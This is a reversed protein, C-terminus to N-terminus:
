NAHITTRTGLINKDISDTLDYGSEILACLTLIAPVPYKDGIVPLVSSLREQAPM